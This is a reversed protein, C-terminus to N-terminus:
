WQAQKRNYAHVYIWIILCHDCVALMHVAQSSQIQSSKTTVVLSSLMFVGVPSRRDPTRCGDLDIETAIQVWLRQRHGPSCISWRRAVIHWLLDHIVFFFSSYASRRLNGRKMGSRTLYSFKDTAAIKCLMFEIKEWKAYNHFRLLYYIRICTCAYIIYYMYMCCYTRVNAFSRPYCGLSAVGSSCVVLSGTVYYQWTWM